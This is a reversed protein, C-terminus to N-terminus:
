EVAVDEGTRASKVIAELVRTGHLIQDPTVPFPDGGACDRAFVELATAISPLYPYGWSKWSRAQPETGTMQVTMRNHGSAEAWGQTGSARLHWLRATSAVTGLYGLQGGAFQVIVATADDIDYPIAVRRSRAHVCEIRGFLDVFLDVVHIGLSTMGGAPSEKRDDRWTGAAAGMQTSFNGEIHVMTGLEGSDILRKLEISNPFFRRNHGIAVKLGGSALADLAVAADDGDLCFPKECFVHKGARAAAMIQEFHMTHPTALVVADIEDVALLDDLTAYLRLGHRVAFGEVRSPTRTTAAVFRLADSGHAISEVLIQGWGGLGVIAADIM